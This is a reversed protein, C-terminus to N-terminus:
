SYAENIWLFVAIDPKKPVRKIRFVEKCALNFPPCSLDIHRWGGLQIDKNNKDLDSIDNAILAFKFKHLADLCNQIYSNPLHQLVDKVILLDAAKVNLFNGDYLLFNVNNKKYLLNNQDIVCKAVDYGTYQIGDWSILKSFQWDGCGADSVTQIANNKMFDALFKRYGATINPTSGSGSTGGWVQNVYISEFKFNPDLEKSGVIGFKIMKLTNDISKLYKNTQQQILTSDHQFLHKDNHANDHPKSILDINGLMDQTLYPKLSIIMDTFIDDYLSFNKEYFFDENIKLIFCIEGKTQGARFDFAYKTKALIETKKAEIKKYLDMNVTYLKFLIEDGFARIEFQTCPKNELIIYIRYGKTLCKVSYKNSYYQSFNNIFTKLLSSYCKVMCTLKDMTRIKFEKFESLAVKGTYPTGGLGLWIMNNEEWEPVLLNAIGHSWFKRTTTQHIISNNHWKTNLNNNYELPLTSIEINNLYLVLNLIAQDPLFLNDWYEITKTYCLKTLERYNISDNIVVVGSNRARIDSSLGEVKAGLAIELPSGGPRMAVAGYNIINRIDKKIITDTDLYFVHKSNDLHNFIEYIAFALLSYKKITGHSPLQSLEQPNYTNFKCKRIKLLSNKDNETLGDHYIVVEDVFGPNYKELGILVNALAFAYDNTASLVLTVNKKM